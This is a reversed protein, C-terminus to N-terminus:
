EEGEPAPWRGAETEWSPVGGAVDFVNYYITRNKVTQSDGGLADVLAFAFAYALAPGQGTIINGDTVVAEDVWTGANEIQDKVGPYCTFRKGELLGARGLAEPAACMACVWKGEAAAKQLAAILSANDRMADSGGYGGPLVVMDYADLSGDFVTDCRMAIHHTGAVEEAELGVMECPIEARRIMDVITLTEGEECGPAAIVAVKAM